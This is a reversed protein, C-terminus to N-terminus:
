CNMSFCSFLLEFVGKRERERKKGKKKISGKREKKNKNSRVLCAYSINIFYFM